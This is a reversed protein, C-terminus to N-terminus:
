KYAAWTAIWTNSANLSGAPDKSGASTFNASVYSCRFTSDIFDATGIVSWGSGATYTANACLVLGVASTKTATTSAAASPSTGTGTAKASQDPQGSSQVDTTSFARGFRYGFTAGGWTLTITDSVALATAAKACALVVTVAVGGVTAAQTQLVSYSNGKSDSISSLTQGGGSWVFIVTVEDNQNVATGLTIVTTGASGTPGLNSGIAAGFTPTNSAVPVSGALIPAWALM